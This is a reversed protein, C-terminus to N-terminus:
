DTESLRDELREIRAKLQSNEELSRAAMAKVADFEDRTVLQMRTLMKEVQAHVMADMEQKVGAFTDAASGALRAFDDLIKHENTM